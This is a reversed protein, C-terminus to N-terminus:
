GLQERDILTVSPSSSESLIPAIQYERLRLVGLKDERQIVWDPNESEDYEAPTPPVDEESATFVSEADEEDGRLWRWEEGEDNERLPSKYSPFFGSLAFPEDRPRSTSPPVIPSHIFSQQRRYPPRGPTQITLSVALQPASKSRQQISMTPTARSSSVVPLCPSGHTENCTSSAFPSHIISPPAFATRSFPPVFSHRHIKYLLHLYVRWARLRV